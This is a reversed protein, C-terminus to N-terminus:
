LAENLYKCEIAYKLADGQFSVFKLCKNPQSVIPESSTVTPYKLLFSFDKFCNKQQSKSCSKSWLCLFYTFLALREITHHAFGASLSGKTKQLGFATYMLPQYISNNRVNALNLKEQLVSFVQQKFNVRAINQIIMSRYGQLVRISKSIVQM